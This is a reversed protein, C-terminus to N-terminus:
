DRKADSRVHMFTKAQQYAQHLHGTRLVTSVAEILNCVANSIEGVHLTLDVVQMADTAEGNRLAGALRRWAAVSSSCTVCTTIACGAACGLCDCLGCCTLLLCSVNGQEDHIQLASHWDM